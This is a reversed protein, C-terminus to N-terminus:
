SGPGISPLQNPDGVFIVRAGLPIASLTAALLSIDAMSLEEIFFFSGDIPDIEDYRAGGRRGRNRRAVDAPVGEPEDDGGFGYGIASHITQFQVRGGLSTAVGGFIQSSRKAAKGTPAMVRVVGFGMSVLAKMILCAVMSKGTGAPGTLGCVPHDLLYRCAEVQNGILGDVELPGKWPRAKARLLELRHAVYREQSDYKWLAVWAQPDEITTDEDSLTVQKDELLARWRGIQPQYSLMEFCRGDVEWRQVTTHGDQAAMQTMVEVIAADQREPGDPDYGAVTLAFRDVKKWGMRPYDLLRYPTEQVMSPANSKWDYLLRLIMKEGVDFGNFLDVLKAYAIPDIERGDTAFHHVISDRIAKTIGPVELVRDVTAHNRLIDLTAAGFKDVIALAFRPGVKDVRNQLYIRVGRPSTDIVQNFFEFAFVPMPYKVTGEKIKGFFQFVEGEVSGHLPKSMEGIIKTGDELQAVLFPRGSRSQGIKHSFVRTVRGNITQMSTQMSLRGLLKPIAEDCSIGPVAPAPAMSFSMSTPHDMAGAPAPHRADSAIPRMRCRRPWCPAAATRRPGPRRGSPGPPPPASGPWPRKRTPDSGARLKFLRPRNWGKKTRGQADEYTGGDEIDVIFKRGKWNRLYCAEEPILEGPRYEFGLATILQYFMKAEMGKTRLKVSGDQNMLCGNHYAALQDDNAPPLLIKQTSTQGPNAPDGISITVQRCDCNHPIGNYFLRRSLPKTPEPFGLIEYAGYGVPLSLSQEEKIQRPTKDIATSQKIQEDDYDGFPANGAM